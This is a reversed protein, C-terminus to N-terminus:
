LSLHFTNTHLHAKQCNRGSGAVLFQSFKAFAGLPQSKGFMTMYSITLVRKFRPATRAMGHKVFVESNVKVELLVPTNRRKERM